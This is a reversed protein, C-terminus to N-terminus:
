GRKHNKISYTVIGWICFNNEETIKIPMFAPNAPMLYVADPEIRIYKLTFEGDIFCIAMDGDKPVLSKDIVLLDGDEVGADIMSSGKVRGYFTTSPNSILEKNLDIKLDIYDQAPSPFGACIGGDALPLELEVSTSASYFDISATSAIKNNM